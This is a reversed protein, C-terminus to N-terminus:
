EEALRIRKRVDKEAATRTERLRLFSFKWFNRLRKNEKERTKIMSVRKDMNRTGGWNLVIAMLFEIKGMDISMERKTRIFSLRFVFIITRINSAKKEKSRPLYKLFYLGWIELCRTNGVM